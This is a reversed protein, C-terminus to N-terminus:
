NRISQGKEMLMAIRELTEQSKALGIFARRERAFMAKESVTEPADTDSVVISAVAMAVTKDHPFFMGDAIGKDMFESMKQRLGAGPLTLEPAAAQKYGKGHIAAIREMASALLKDRNMEMHDRHPLFYQM